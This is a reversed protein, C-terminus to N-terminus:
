LFIKGSILKLMLKGPMERTDMTIVADVTIATGVTIVSDVTIVTGVTIVNDVSIVADV